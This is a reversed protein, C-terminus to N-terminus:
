RDQFAGQGVRRARTVPGGFSPPGVLASLPAGGKNPDAASPTPSDILIGGLLVGDWEGTGAGTATGAGPGAGMRRANFWAAEDRQALTRAQYALADASRLHLLAATPDSDGLETGTIHHSRAEHLRVRAELGVAGRRTMIM